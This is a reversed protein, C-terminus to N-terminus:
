RQSSHCVSGGRRPTGDRSAREYEFVQAREFAQTTLGALTALFRLDPEGPEARDVFALSLVGLPGVSGVLPENVVTVPAALEEVVGPVLEEDVAGAAEGTPTVTTVTTRGEVFCSGAATWELPVRTRTLLAAEGSGALCSLTRTGPVPVRVVAADAGFAELGATVAANAVDRPTTAAALASSLHHLQQSRELNVFETVTLRAREVAQAAAGTIAFLFGLDPESLDRNAAWRAVLAGITHDSVVLPVVALGHFPSTRVVAFVDSRQRRLETHSGAFLPDNAKLVPGDPRLAALVADPQDDPGYGFRRLTQLRGREDLLAFTAADVQLEDRLAAFVADAVQVPDVATNLARAMTQMRQNMEAAVRRRRENRTEFRATRLQVSREVRLQSIWMALATAALTTVVRLTHNLGGYAHNAVPLAVTVIAALVGVLAM